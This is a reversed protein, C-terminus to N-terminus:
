SMLVPLVKHIERAGIVSVRGFLVLMIGNRAAGPLSRRWPEHKRSTSKNDWLTGIVITTSSYGDQFGVPCQQFGVEPRVAGDLEV